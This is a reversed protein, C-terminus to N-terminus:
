HPEASLVAARRAPLEKLSKAFSEWASRAWAGEASLGSTQSGSAKYDHSYWLSGTRLDFVGFWVADDVAKTSDGVASVVQGAAAAARAGAQDPASKPNGPMAGVKGPKVDGPRLAILVQIGLASGVKRLSRRTGDSLKAKRLVLDDGYHAWPITWVMSDALLGLSLSDLDWGRLNPLLPHSSDIPTWHLGPVLPRLVEDTSALAEFGARTYLGPREVLLVGINTTSDLIGNWAPDMQEAFRPAETRSSGACSCLVVFVSVFLLRRMSLFRRGM